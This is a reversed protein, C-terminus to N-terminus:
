MVVVKLCALFPWILSSWLRRPQRAKNAVRKSFAFYDLQKAQFLHQAHRALETSSVAGFRFGPLVFSSVSATEDSETFVFAVRWINVVPLTNPLDIPFRLLMECAPFPRSSMFRVEVEDPRGLDLWRRRDPEVPVDGISTNFISGGGEGAATLDKATWDLYSSFTGPPNMKPDIVQTVFTCGTAGYDRATSTVAHRVGEPMVIRISELGSPARLPILIGFTIWIKTSPAPTDYWLMYPMTVDGFLYLRAAPVEANAEQIRGRQELVQVTFVDNKGSQAPTYGALAFSYEVATRLTAHTFHISVGQRLEACVVKHDKHSSAPLNYPYFDNCKLLYGSPPLVTISGGDRIDIDTAIRVLFFTKIQQFSGYAVSVSRLTESVLGTTVGWGVQINGQAQRGELFWRNDM